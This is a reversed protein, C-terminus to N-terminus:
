FDALMHVRRLVRGKLWTRRRKGNQPVKATTDGMAPQYERLYRSMLFGRMAPQVRMKTAVMM